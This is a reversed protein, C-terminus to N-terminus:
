DEKCIEAQPDRLAPRTEDCYRYCEVRHMEAVDSCAENAPLEACSALNAETYKDCRQAKCEGATMEIVPCKRAREMQANTRGAIGSIAISTTMCFIVLRGTRTM